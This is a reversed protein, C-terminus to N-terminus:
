GGHNIEQLGYYKIIVIGSGGAGASGSGNWPGGGGGTNVTGATSGAGGGGTTGVTNEYGCGGGARYVLTGTISSAVGIGGASTVSPGGEAGAGGGSQGGSNYGQGATGLGTNAGGSGGNKGGANWTAYNAASTAAGGGGGGLSTITSIGSGSISSNVGQIGCLPSSGDGGGAGGAGVTVTYSQASLLNARNEAGAGGGSLEGVVSSRYGGAGAGKGQNAGGGGGGAVVLYECTLNASPTFTGSSTFTHIVNGFSDYTITGGTAKATGTGTATAKIGYLSFTSGVAWNGGGSATVAISNIATNNHWVSVRQDVYNASSNGRGIITKHFNTNSYGLFDYTLTEFQVSDVICYGAYGNSAGHNSGATPITGYFSTQSYSNATDGNITIYSNQGGATTWKACIVLQLHTYAQSISNFSVSSTASAVTVKDLAVYTNTAM